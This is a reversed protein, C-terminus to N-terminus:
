EQHVEKLFELLRRASQEVSFAEATKPGNSRLRERLEAEHILRVIQGRMADVNGPECLLCNHEHVGYETVGEVATTVLAAGCAMAQLPPAPFGDYLSPYIFIDSEQLANAYDQGHLYGYNRDFIQAHGPIVNGISDLRINPFMSKLGRVAELGVREGKQINDDCYLSIVLADERSRARGPRFLNLDLGNYIVKRIPIGLREAARKSAESTAYRPASILRERAVWQRYWAAAEASPSNMAKELNVHVAIVLKIGGPPITRLLHPMLYPPHVVAIDGDKWGKASPTIVFRAAGVRADVEHYKFGCWTRRLPVHIIMEGMLKVAQKCKNAFSMRSMSFLKYDWWDIAPFEVM